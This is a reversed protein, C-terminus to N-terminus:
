FWGFTNINVNAILAFTLTEKWFINAFLLDVTFNAIFLSSDQELIESSFHFSDKVDITIFSLVPALFKAFKHAPTKLTSLVPKIPPFRDVLKKNVMSLQYM